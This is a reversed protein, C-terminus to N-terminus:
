THQMNVHTVIVLLVGHTAIEIEIKVIQLITIIINHSVTILELLALPQFKSSNCSKCCQILMYGPNRRCEGRSAWSACFQNNNKCSPKTTPKPTPPAKTTTIVTTTKCSKCCNKLMYGPNKTCENRSAWSACNSNSDVCNNGGGGGGGTTKCGYLDNM